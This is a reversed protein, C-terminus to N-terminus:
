LSRWIRCNLGMQVRVNPTIKQTKFEQSTCQIPGSRKRALEVIKRDSTIEPILEAVIKRGTEANFHYADSFNKTEQTIENSYDLDIVTGLQALELRFEHNISGL